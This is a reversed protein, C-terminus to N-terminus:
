FRAEPLVISVDEFSAPAKILKDLFETLKENKKKVQDIFSNPRLGVVEYKFENALSLFIGVREKSDKLTALILATQAKPISEKEDSNAEKVNPLEHYHSNKKRIKSLDQIIYREVVLPKMMKRIDEFNFLIDDERGAKMGELKVIWKTM